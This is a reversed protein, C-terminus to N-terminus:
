TRSNTIAAASRITVKDAGSESRILNLKGDPQDRCESVAGCDDKGGEVAVSKRM